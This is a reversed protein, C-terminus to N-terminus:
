RCLLPAILKLSAWGDLFTELAEIRKSEACGDVQDIRMQM